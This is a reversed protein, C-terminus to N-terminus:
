AAKSSERSTASPAMLSDRLSQLAEAKLQYIRRSSLHFRRAIEEITWNEWFQLRLVEQHRLPLATFAARLAPTEFDFNVDRDRVSAAAEVAVVEDFESQEDPELNTRSTAAISRGMDRLHRRAHEGVLARLRGKMPTYEAVAAVAVIQAISEREDRDILNRPWRKTRCDIAVMAQSIALLILQERAAQNRGFQWLSYLRWEEECSVDPAPLAPLCSNSM